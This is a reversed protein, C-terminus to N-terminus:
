ACFGDPNCLGSCCVTPDVCVEGTGLCAQPLATCVGGQCVQDTACVNGCAGCNEADSSLNVCVGGCNTETLV